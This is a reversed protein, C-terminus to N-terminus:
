VNDPDLIDLLTDLDSLYSGLPADRPALVVEARWTRLESIYPQADRLRVLAVGAAHDHERQRQRLAEAAEPTIEMTRKESM